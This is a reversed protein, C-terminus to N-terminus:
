QADAEGKFKGYKLAYMMQKGQEPDDGDDNSFDMDEINQDYASSNQKDAEKSQEHQQAIEQLVTADMKPPSMKPMQQDPAKSPMVPVPNAMDAKEKVNIEKRRIAVFLAQKEEESLLRGNLLCTKGDMTIEVVDGNDLVYSLLHTAPKSPEEMTLHSSKDVMQQLRSFQKGTLAPLQGKTNDVIFDVTRGDTRVEALPAPSNKSRIVYLKLM